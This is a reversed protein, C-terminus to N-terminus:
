GPIVTVEDNLKEQLKILNSFESQAIDGYWLPGYKPTYIVGNHVGGKAMPYIVKGVEGFLEKCYEFAEEVDEEYILNPDFVVVSEEAWKDKPTKTSKM